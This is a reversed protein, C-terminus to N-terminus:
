FGFPRHGATDVFPASNQWSIADRMLYRAHDGRASRAAAAYVIHRAASGQFEAGGPGGFQFDADGIARVVQVISRDGSSVMHWGGRSSDVCLPGCASLAHGTAYNDEAWHGGSFILHHRDSTADYRVAPNERVNDEWTGPGGFGNMIEVASGAVISHWTADLAAGMISSSIGGGYQKWYVYRRGDHDRFLFPDIYHEGSSATHGMARFVWPGTPTTAILVALARTDWGTSPDRVGAAAPVSVWMVYRDLDPAYIIGPAWWSGMMQGNASMGTLDFRTASREDTFSVWDTTRWVHSMSTCYVFWTAGADRESFVTPDACPMPRTGDLLLASTPARPGSDVSAGGADRTAPADATIADDLTPADDMADSGSVADSATSTDLASDRSLVTDSANGGDLAADDGSARSACGTALAVFSGFVISRVRACFM